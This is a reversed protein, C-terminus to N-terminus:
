RACAARLSAVLDRVAAIAREPTKAAEIASCVASGVVVGDAHKALKRADDPTKVGFGVAVPLGTSARVESARAAARELDAAAGTVGTLSVYYLFSDALAAIRAVRAPPTTPAVLPVFSLAHEKLAAQLSEGEEPPLDVTLFGDVGAQAAAQAVAREGFALLPNYYGFLVVGVAPHKARFRQVCSLVGTLTTGSKLARESARQIVPGDATPDSFPMGVELVDAGAEAAANMLQLSTELDPDGACLYIVLASRQERKARAFAEQIRGM